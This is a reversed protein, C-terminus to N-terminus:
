GSLYRGLRRITEAAVIAQGRANLHLGDSAYIDDHGAPHTPLDVHLAGYERGAECVMSSLEAIRESMVKRYKEAVYPSNTIDFLGMTIVTAGADRLAAIVPVVEARTAAVDFGRQLIDNGGSLVAALDPGFELAPTLQSSRVEAALLNRKGLNLAVVEPNILQLQEAFRDFWTRTTYGPVAETVGEAGSDGVVVFRRWPANALLRVAEGDRLLYPDDVETM